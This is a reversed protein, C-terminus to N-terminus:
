LARLLLMPNKHIAATSADAEFLRKGRKKSELYRKRYDLHAYAHMKEAMTPGIHVAESKRSAISTKEFVQVDVSEKIGDTVSSAIKTLMDTSDSMANLGEESFKGEIAMSAKQKSAMLSLTQEQVTDKYFMFYVEVDHEQSLRWSRRSSQRMTFLNYGIQYYIITTFDLLDLGTEVLTPNCILVDIKDRELKQRIWEERDKAKITATMTAAKIGNKKLMEKIRKMVVTRNTWHCYILVKEGAEKKAKVIELLKEEKPFVQDPNMDMPMAITDGTEPDIVAPQDFPQDPYVALAQVMQAMYRMGGRHVNSKSTHFANALMNYNNRMELPMDVPVPIEKYGPLGSAIDEQSIFAANELLFKTFVIPSVGPLFKTKSAGHKKGQTGDEWEFSSETKVVGYERAFADPSDYNYGERKMQGAFLRYLIYYIGSAYGNLLTGTLGLTKKAASAIDGLAEGQATDGGKMLHIEDCIFYDLYPKLYRHIYKAIPYKRPARVINKEDEDTAVLMAELWNKEDKEIDVDIDLKGQIRDIEEPIRAKEIWGMSTKVWEKADNGNKYDVDKTFAEWLKTNCPVEEYMMTEPNWKRVTNICVANRANKKAFDLAKLRHSVPFKNRGHGEHTVYFLPKGCHPCTYAADHHYHSVKSENWVAAPREEYGFKATEKSLILWLNRKRKKDAIYDKIKLLSSFDDIIVADSLPALREIESKWKLVIHAPCMVVITLGRKGKAQTLITEIGMATKGSGCEGVIFASKKKDLANSVAQCVAKQADYLKLHGHYAAYDCLDNLTQSYSDQGPIFYPRFANHIRHALTESFENLYGDIGSMEDMRISAANSGNINIDGSQLGETIASTLANVSVSVHFASMKHPLDESQTCRLPHISYQRCLSRFLYPIWEKLVPAPSMKYFKDYMADQLAQPIEMTDDSVSLSIDQENVDYVYVFFSMMEIETDTKYLRDKKSIIIHSFDSNPIKSTFIDYLGPELTYYRSWFSVNCKKHMDREAQKINSSYGFASTFVFGEGYSNDTVTINASLARGNAITLRDAM